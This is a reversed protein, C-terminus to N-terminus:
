SYQLIVGPSYTKGTPLPFIGGALEETTGPIRSISDINAHSHDYVPTTIMTIKGDSYHVLRDFAGPQNGAAWLGGAGDSTPQGIATPSSAVKAWKHGNYRLIVGPDGSLSGGDGTVFINDASLALVGSLSKGAKKGPLMTALNTATWKHGDYHDIDTGDAVYASTASLADGNGKVTSSIKTWKHGNYHYVGASPLTGGGYIGSGYAYVDNPSLVTGGGLEGAFTAVVAFKKGTWKLVESQAKETSVRLIDAFVFVDSPSAASAGAIWEDAVTPLPVKKFTTAGTREYAVPVAVTTNPEFFGFGSTKGTAVVADFEGNRALRYISHWTPRHAPAVSANAASAFGVLALAASAAAITRVEPRKMVKM